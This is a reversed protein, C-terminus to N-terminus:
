AATAAHSAARRRPSVDIASTCRSISRWAAVARTGRAGRGAEAGSGGRLLLPRARAEGRTATLATDALDEALMRSTHYTSLTYRAHFPGGSGGAHQTPQNDELVWTVAPIDTERNRLDPALAVGSLAAVNLADYINEDADAFPM